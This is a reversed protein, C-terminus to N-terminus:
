LPEGRKRRYIVEGTGPDVDRVFGEDTMLKDAMEKLIARVAARGVRESALWPKKSRVLLDLMAMFDAETAEPFHRKVARIMPKSLTSFAEGEAGPGRGGAGLPGSTLFVELMRQPLSLARKRDLRPKQSRKM